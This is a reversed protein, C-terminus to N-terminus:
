AHGGALHERVHDIIKQFNSHMKADTTGYCIAMSAVYAMLCTAYDDPDFGEAKVADALDRVRDYLAMRQEPTRDTM